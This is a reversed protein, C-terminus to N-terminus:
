LSQWREPNANRLCAHRRCGACSCHQWRTQWRQREFTARCRHRPATRASRKQWCGILRSAGWPAACCHLPHLTLAVAHCKCWAARTGFRWSTVSPQLARRRGNSCARITVTLTVFALQHWDSHDLHPRPPVFAAHIPSPLHFRVFLEGISAYRLAAHLLSASTIHSSCAGAHTQMPILSPCALRPM